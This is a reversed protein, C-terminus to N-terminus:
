VIGNVSVSFTASEQGSASRTIRSLRTGDLCIDPAVDQDSVAPDGVYAPLAVDVPVDSFLQTFRCTFPVGDTSVLACVRPRTRGLSDNPVVAYWLTLFPVHSSARTSPRTRVYTAQTITVFQSPANPSSCAPLFAAILIASPKM